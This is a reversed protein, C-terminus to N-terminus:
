KGETAIIIGINALRTLLISASFEDKNKHATELATLLKYVQENNKFDEKNTFLQM